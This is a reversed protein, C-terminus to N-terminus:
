FLGLINNLEKHKLDAWELNTDAKMKPKDSHWGEGLIEWFHFSHCNKLLNSPKKGSEVEM